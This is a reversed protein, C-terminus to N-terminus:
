VLHIFVGGTTKTEPAFQLYDLLSYVDDPGNQIVTGTLAWRIQSTEALAKVAQPHTHTPTHTPPYVRVLM